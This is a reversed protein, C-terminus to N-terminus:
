RVPRYGVPTARSADIRFLRQVRHMSEPRPRAPPRPPAASAYSTRRTRAAAAGTFTSSSSTRRALAARARRRRQQHHASTCTARRSLTQSITSEVTRRTTRSRCSRPTARRGASRFRLAASPARLAESSAPSPTSSWVGCAAARPARRAGRATGTVVNRRWVLVHSVASSRNMRAAYTLWLRGDADGMVSPDITHPGGAKAIKEDGCLVPEGADSWDIAAAQSGSPARFTGTARGICGSGQGDLAPVSYYMIFEDGGAALGNGSSPLDPAWFPCAPDCGQKKWPEYDRLWPPVLFSDEGQHWGKSYDAPDIYKMGFAEGGGSGTVLTVYYGDKTRQLASPDHGPRSCARGVCPFPSPAAAVLRSAGGSVLNTLLMLRHSDTYSVTVYRCPHCRYRLGLESLTTREPEGFAEM